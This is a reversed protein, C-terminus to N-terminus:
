YRLDTWHFMDFTGGARKINGKVGQSKIWYEAFDMRDRFGDFKVFESVEKVSLLRGDVVIIISTLHKEQIITVKVTQISILKEKDSIKACKSTRLGTYMFLTEGVKPMKKRRVRLTFVKTGIQIPEVFRPKFGLLM